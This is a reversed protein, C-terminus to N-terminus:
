GVKAQVPAAAEAPASSSATTTTAVPAAVNPVRSREHAPPLTDLVVRGIFHLAQRAIYWPRLMVFAAAQIAHAVRKANARREWSSRMSQKAKIYLGPRRHRMEPNADFYQVLDSAIAADEISRYFGVWVKDEEADVLTRRSRPRSNGHDDRRQDSM